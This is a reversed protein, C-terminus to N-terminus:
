NGVLMSKPDMNGKILGEHKLLKIWWEIQGATVDLHIDALVTHEAVNKPLKTWKTLSKRAEKNHSLVFAQGEALAARFKKITDPHKRAWERTSVYFDILTGDPVSKAFNTFPYGIKRAIIRHYFPDVTVVADVNGSKLLDGEQPFGVEAFHVKNPDVGNAELWRRAMVWFYSKLGPLGITKGVLDHANKIGSGTRALIGANVPKPYPFAAAGAVITLKIGAEEAELTSPAVSVGLQTSGSVLASVVMSQNPVATLDVSLGRKKFFGHDKAVYLPLSDVIPIYVIKLTDTPAATAPSFGGQMLTLAAITVAVALAKVNRTSAGTRIM